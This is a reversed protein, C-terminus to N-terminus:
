VCCSAHHTTYSHRSALLVFGEVLYGIRKASVFWYIQFSIQYCYLSFFSCRSQLVRQPTWSWPSAYQRWQYSHIKRNPNQVGTTILEQSRHRPSHIALTLLPSAAQWRNDLGEYYFYFLKIFCDYEILSEKKKRFRLTWEGQQLLLTQANFRLPKRQM